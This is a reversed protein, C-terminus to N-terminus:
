QGNGEPQHKKLIEEVPALLEIDPDQGAKESAERYDRALSAALPAFAEPLRELHGRIGALAEGLEGVAETARGLEILCRAKVCTSRALDPLFADPREEALRRRIDAAEQAGALAEERRGLDSLMNALNNLSAALNPLFADPREEALRRYINVAEQIGALAEERRGLGRLMTALNNLSTGLDPLFADPREEALRRRIDVAEQAGALAEERRGLDSLTAALNNLSTGLYPLFADPREEALRRHIDAAEQAGALAEERRGLESLMTALDSLSAALDPQFTDPHEAALRRYTGVGQQAEAAARERSAVDFVALGALDSCASALRMRLRALLAEDPAERAAHDRLLGEYLSIRRELEGRDQPVRRAAAPVIEVMERSTPAPESRFDFVGSRFAWFDPAKAAIQRLGYEGTWFVLAHPTDALAERRLNVHGALGPLADELGYFFVCCRDKVGLSDLHALPDNDAGSLSFEVVRMALRDKLMGAAADRGAIDTHLAFTLVNGSTERVLLALTDLEGVRAAQQLPDDVDVM